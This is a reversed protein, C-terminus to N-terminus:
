PQPKLFRGGSMVGASLMQIADQPDRFSEGPFAQEFNVKLCEVLSDYDHVGIKHVRPISPAAEVGARFARKAIIVPMPPPYAAIAAEADHAQTGIWRLAADEIADERAKEFSQPLSESM